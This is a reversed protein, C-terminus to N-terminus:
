LSTRKFCGFSTKNCTLDVSDYKSHLLFRKEIAILFLDKEGIYLRDAWQELHGILNQAVEDDARAQFLVNVLETLRTPLSESLTISYYPSLYTSHINSMASDPVTLFSKAVLRVDDQIERAVSRIDDGTSRILEFTVKAFQEMGIKTVPYYDQKAAGASSILSIRQSILVISDLERRYVMLLIVNGISTIGAMLVDPMNHQVVSEVAKSLYEAAIIAHEKHALQSAYDINMYIRCVGTIADFTQEILQEDGRSVAIQVTQRLHELTDNIFTDVAFPNDIM